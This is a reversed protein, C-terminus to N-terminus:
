ETPSHIVAALTVSAALHSNCESSDRSVIASRTPQLSLVWKMRCNLFAYPWVGAAQRSSARIEEYLLRHSPPSPGHEESRGREHDVNGFGPQLGSRGRLRGTEAPSFSSYRIAEPRSSSAARSRITCPKRAGSSSDGSM